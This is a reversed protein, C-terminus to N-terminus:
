SPRAKAKAIRTLVDSEKVPPAALSLLLKRHWRCRGTEDVAAQVCAGSATQAQCQGHGYDEAGIV